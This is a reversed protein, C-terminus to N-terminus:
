YVLARSLTSETETEENTEKQDGWGLAMGMPQGMREENYDQLNAPPGYLDAHGQDARENEEVMGCASVKEEMGCVM